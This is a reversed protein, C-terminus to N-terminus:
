NIELCKNWRYFHMVLFLVLLFIPNKKKTHKLKKGLDCVFFLSINLDEAVVLESIYLLSEISKEVCGALIYLIMIIFVLAAPQM